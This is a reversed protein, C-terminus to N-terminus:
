LQCYLIIHVKPKADDWAGGISRKPDYHLGDPLTVGDCAAYLNDVLNQCGDPCFEVAPNCGMCSGDNGM